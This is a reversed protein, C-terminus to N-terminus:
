WHNQQSSGDGSSPPDYFRGGTGPHHHHHHYGHQQQSGHGGQSQSNSVVSSAAAAAMAAAAAAEWAGPDTNRSLHQQSALSLFGAMVSPQALLNALQQQLDSSTHQQAAAAVAVAAATASAVEDYSSTNGPQGLGFTSPEDPRKNMKQQIAHALYATMSQGTSDWNQANTHSQQLANLLQTTSSSNVAAASPRFEHVHANSTPIQNGGASGKPEAPGIHLSSGNLFHQQSYLLPICSTDRFTVFGFARFPQGIYVDVVDGFQSFYARLDETTTGQPLRAVFIKRMTHAAKSFTNPGHKSEPIKVQCARGYVVHHNEKLVRTQAKYDRFRIFGFGKSVGNYDRKIECLSLPGFQEFYARVSDESSKYNIGLVILDTCQPSQFPSATAAAPPAYNTPPNVSSPLFNSTNTTSSSSSVVTPIATTIPPSQVRRQKLHDSTSLAGNDIQDEMKRKSDKHYVPHFLSPKTWDDCFMRGGICQLTHWYGPHGDLGPVWYELGVAGPFKRVLKAIHVTDDDEVQISVCDEDGRVGDECRKGVVRISM